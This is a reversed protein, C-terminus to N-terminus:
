LGGSSMTMTEIIASSVTASMAPRLHIEGTAVTTTEAVTSVAKREPRTVSVASM